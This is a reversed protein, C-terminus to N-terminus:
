VVTSAAWDLIDPLRFRLDGRPGLKICPMGNNKIHRRITRESCDFHKAVEKITMYETRHEVVGLNTELQKEIKQGASLHVTLIVRGDHHAELIPTINRADMWIQLSSYIDESVWFTMTVASLATSM